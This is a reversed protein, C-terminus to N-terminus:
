AGQGCTGGRVEVCDGHERRHVMGVLLLEWNDFTQALVSEISEEIFPGANLFPTIISVRTM